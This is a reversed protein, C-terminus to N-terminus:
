AKKKPIHFCLITFCINHGDREMGLKYRGKDVESFTKNISCQKMRTMLNKLFITYNKQTVFLIITAESQNHRLYKDFLGDVAEDFKKVPGCVKCEAIFITKGDNQVMIDTLGYGHQSEATVNLDKQQLHALISDRLGPETKKSETRLNTEMSNRCEWCFNVITSYDCNTKKAQKQKNQTQSEAGKKSAVAQTDELCMKLYPHLTELFLGRFYLHNLNNKIHGCLWSIQKDLFRSMKKYSKHDKPVHPLINACNKAILACTRFEGYIEPTAETMVEQKDPWRFSRGAGTPILLSCIDILGNTGKRNGIDITNGEESEEILAELGWWLTSDDVISSGIELGEQTYLSVEKTITKIVIDLLEKEPYPENKLKYYVYLASYLKPDLYTLHFNALDGREELSKKPSCRRNIPKFDGELATYKESLTNITNKGNCTDPYLEMARRLGRTFISLASYLRRGWLHLLLETYDIKDKDATTLDLGSAEHEQLGFYKFIGNNQRLTEIVIQRGDDDVKCYIDGLEKAIDFNSRLVQLYKNQNKERSDAM